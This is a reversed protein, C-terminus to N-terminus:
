VKEGSKESVARLMSDWLLDATKQWSFHKARLTGREILEGRIEPSFAVKLMAEKISDPDFPDTLLAADGSVEPMSSTNSTIVPVRCEFAELIPIGFGEFISPLVLAISSGILNKLEERDVRGTFVVDNKHKMEAFASEIDKTWWMRHGAFVLQISGPASAKFRDFAKLLIAINKRPHISGVFIFYDRGSTYKGRTQDVTDKDVPQFIESAGNYVVDIRDPSIGYFNRIDNKSFESVTAIRVAKRSFRPFFYRYYWSIHLPLAEPYHEFNLDHIVALSPIRSSLALYGDPSLFLDPKIRNLERRVSIEFWWIFLLPHRAQPFLVVPTINGAFIFSPDYPRDFLFYFQHEPHQLTIRKLSEYTFRGIGDLRGKLLLRTNVAIKM